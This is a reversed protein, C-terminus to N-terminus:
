DIHRGLLSLDAPSLRDSSTKAQHWYPYLLPKASVADLRSVEDDTLTLQASAVNDARQDETRVGVIVSTVAPKGVIYALAIQAASVGRSAGVEIPQHREDSVGWVQESFTGVRTAGNVRPAGPCNDAIPKTAIPDVPYMQDGPTTRAMAPAATLQVTLLIGGIVALRRVRNRYM